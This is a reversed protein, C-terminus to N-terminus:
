RRARGGGEAADVCLRAASGAASFRPEPRSLKGPSGLDAIARPDDEYRIEGEGGSSAAGAATEFSAPSPSLARREQRRRARALARAARALQGCSRSCARRRRFNGLPEDARQALKRRCAPNGCRRM